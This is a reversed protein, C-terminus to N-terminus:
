SLLNERSKDLPQATFYDRQLKLVHPQAAEDILGLIEVQQELLFEDAQDRLSGFLGSLAPLAKLADNQSVEDLIQRVSTLHAFPHDSKKGFSSTSM